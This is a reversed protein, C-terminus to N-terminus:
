ARRDNGGSSVPDVGFPYASIFDAEVTGTRSPWEWGSAFITLAQSFLDNYILGTYISFLGMLLIMYRGGFIIKMQTFAMLEM